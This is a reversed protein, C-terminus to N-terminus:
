KRASLPPIVIISVRGANASYTQGDFPQYFFEDDGVYDADPQYYFSGDPALIVKGHKPPTMLKATLRDGDPDRDNALVGPAEIKMVTNVALGYTADDVVVPAHNQRPTIDSFGYVAAAGVDACRVTAFGRVRNLNEATNDCSAKDMPQSYMVVGAIFGIVTWM